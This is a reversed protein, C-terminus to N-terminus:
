ITWEVSWLAAYGHPKGWEIAVADLTQATLTAWPFVGHSRSSTESGGPILISMRHVTRTVVPKCSDYSCWVVSSLKGIYIYYVIINYVLTPVIRWHGKEFAESASIHQSSVRWIRWTRNCFCAPRTGDEQFEEVAQVVKSERWKLWGQWESSLVVSMHWVGSEAGWLVSHLTTTTAQMSLSLDLRRCKLLPCWETVRKWWIWPSLRWGYCMFLLDSLASCQMRNRFNWAFWDVLFCSKFKSSGYRKFYQATCPKWLIRELKSKRAKRVKFLCLYATHMHGVHITRM